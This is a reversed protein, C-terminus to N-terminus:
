KRKEEGNEEKIYDYIVTQDKHVLVEKEKLFEAALRAEYKETLIAEEKIRNERSEKMQVIGDKDPNRRAIKKAHDQDKKELTLQVRNTQTYKSM